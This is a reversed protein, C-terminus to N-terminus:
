PARQEESVRWLDAIRLGSAEAVGRIYGIALNAHEEVDFEPYDDADTFAELVDFPGNTAEAVEELMEFHIVLQEVLKGPLGEGGSREYLRALVPILSAEGEYVRRALERIADDANRRM